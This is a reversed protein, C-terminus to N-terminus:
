VMFTQVDTAKVMIIILFMVMQVVIADLIVVTVAVSLVEVHHLLAVQADELHHVLHVEVHNLEVAESLVEVHLAPVQVHHLFAM